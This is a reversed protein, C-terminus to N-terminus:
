VAKHKESCEPCVSYEAVIQTGTGGPDDKWDLKKKGNKDITWQKQVKSRFLHQHLKTVLSKKCPTRPPVSKNCFSCRFM